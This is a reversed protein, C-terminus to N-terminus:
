ERKRRLQLEQEELEHKATLAAARAVLAAKEAAAKRVASSTTSSRGSKHSGHSSHKSINSISDEPNVDDAFDREKANGEDCTVWGKTNAICENVSLMKAKFWIDHKEREVHPLLDLLANQVNKVDDCVEILQELARQVQIKDRKLMLGKITKRINAAKNLKKNRVTQLRELENALAKATLKVVRRQTQTEDSDFAGRLTKDTQVNTGTVNIDSVAESMEM